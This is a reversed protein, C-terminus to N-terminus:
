VSVGKGWIASMEKYINELKIELRNELLSINSKNIITALGHIMSWATIASGKETLKVRKGVKFKESVIILFELVIKDTLFILDKNTESFMLNFITKEKLAFNLYAKAILLLQESPVSSKKKEIEIIEFLKNKGVAIIEELLHEKNKFHNYPASSVVGINRSIQRFSLEKTSQLALLSLAELIIAEKLNGHHYTNKNL